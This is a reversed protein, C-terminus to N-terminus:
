WGGNGGGANGGGNGGGGRGGRGGGGGNGGGARGGRGGGQGGGQVPEVPNGKAPGFGGKPGRQPDLLQGGAAHHAPLCLVSLAQALDHFDM